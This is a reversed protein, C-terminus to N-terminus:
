TLLRSIGRQRRIVKLSKLVTKAREFVAKDSLGKTKYAKKYASLMDGHELLGDVFCKEKETLNIIVVGINRGGGDIHIYSM